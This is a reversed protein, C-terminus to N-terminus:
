QNSNMPTVSCDSGPERHYHSASYTYYVTLIYFSLLEGVINNVKRFNRFADAFVGGVVVEYQVTGFVYLQIEMLGLITRM